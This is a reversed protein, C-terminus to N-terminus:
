ITHKGNRKENLIKLYLELNFGGRIQEPISKRLWWCMKLRTKTNIKEM